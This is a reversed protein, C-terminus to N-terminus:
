LFGLSRTLVYCINFTCTCVWLPVLFRHVIVTCVYTLFYLCYSGQWDGPELHCDDWFAFEPRRLRQLVHEPYFEELIKSTQAIVVQATFLM